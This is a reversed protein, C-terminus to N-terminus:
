ALKSIGSLLKMLHIVSQYAKKLSFHLIFSKFDYINLHLLFM